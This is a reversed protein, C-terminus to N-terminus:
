DLMDVPCNKVLNCLTDKVFHGVYVAYAVVERGFGICGNFPFLYFFLRIRPEKKNIGMSGIASGNTVRLVACDHWRPHRKCLLQSQIM